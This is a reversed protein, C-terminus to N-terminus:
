LGPLSFLLLLLREKNVTRPLPHDRVLMVHLDTKYRVVIDSKTEAAPIADERFQDLTPLM